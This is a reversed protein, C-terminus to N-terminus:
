FKHVIQQRQNDQSRIDYDKPNIKIAEDFDLVQLIRNSQIHRLLKIGLSFLKLQIVPNQHQQTM